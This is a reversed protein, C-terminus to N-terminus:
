HPCAEKRSCATPHGNDFLRLSTKHALSAFLRRTSTLWQNARRLLCKPREDLVLILATSTM